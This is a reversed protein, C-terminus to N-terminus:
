TKSDPEIVFIWIIFSFKFEYKTFSVILSPLLIAISVFAINSISLVIKFWVKIPFQVKIEIGDNVIFFVSKCIDSSIFADFIIM